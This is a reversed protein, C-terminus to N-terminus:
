PKNCAFGDRVQKLKEWQNHGFPQPSFTFRIAKRKHTECILEDVKANLGIPAHTAFADLTNVRGILSPGSIHHYEFYTADAKYPPLDREGMETVLAALGSFYTNMDTSLRAASIETDVPVWWIFAYTWFDDADPDFMGPSFRVDGHGTYDLAPAFSLPFTVIEQRWREPVPFHYPIAPTEAESASQAASQPTLAFCSASIFLALGFTLIRATLPGTTGFVISM